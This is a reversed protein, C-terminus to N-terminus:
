VKQPYYLGDREIAAVAEQWGPPQKDRFAAAEQRVDYEVRRHEASWRTGDWALLAYKARPDGDGPMSVSAVNVLLMENWPRSGPLHLHGYAVAAAEVGTFLPALDADPQRIHGYRAAQDAEAPFVIDNLNRPNAHVILLDDAARTTPSVRLSFPRAALWATDEPGLDAQTWPIIERFRDPPSGRGAAWEDTNGMLVALQQERVLRLCEAPRPGMLCLDGAFAVLDAGQSAIDALVAKLGTLNGHVDSFLAIKM